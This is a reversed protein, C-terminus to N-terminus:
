KQKFPKTAFPTFDIDGQINDSPDLDGWWNNEANTTGDFGARVKVPIGALDSFTESNLNNENIVNSAYACQILEQISGTADFANRKIVNNTAGSALVIGTDQRSTPNATGIFSNNLFSIDNSPKGTSPQGNVLAIQPSNSGELFNHQILHGNQGGDARLALAGNDAKIHSYQVSVNTLGEGIILAAHTYDSGVGSITFGEIVVNDAGILVNGNSSQGNIFTKKPNQGSLTIAKNILVDENYEGKSVCIRDGDTAADIASKITPHQRKAVIVDCDKKKPEKYEKLNAGVVIKPAAYAPNFGLLCVLVALTFVKTIKM